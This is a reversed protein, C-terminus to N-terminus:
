AERPIEVVQYVEFVDGVKIDQFDKIGVGCEYGAQVERVDEKFRKLSAIEGDYVVVNDRLVRVSAGRRILGSQVYCGAVVGVGPIRFTQRVEATGLIEEKREPPLLGSMAAKIDEVAEYIVNYTMVDVGEQSALERARQDPRVHFGVIVADSASALLVDSESIAGVGKRIIQVKVKEDELAMLADSLAEVSGDVDGKVILRLEKVKGEEIRRGLDTLTIRRARSYEQERHRQQRRRSIERAEAETETVAFTDGAQPVGDIGLVQVPTSPGASEKPNGREDLLARVRGSYLGAVFPDGVHLTGEQVLVTAVPGRGKDLKAEVVVGRARSNPNARLELMEGILILTDLLQDVGQGTKASVEVMTTKGGWEEPILGYESLQRKVREINATPLDVKNIAVVIPVGAARAHDIAEVTQPRVGDDAAVVLVVIDTVRAGRARMATFAEHGPTDLFTVKGGDVSVEYAGIHQTIGGSEGAVVNTKRIYDLLTTKGHDVHGMVTVVPPRPELEGELVEEGLEEYEEMLEVEYGFEDAVMSLTEMDLRQNITVMLGMQLCKTIVESPSVGMSEALEAVSTFESVKLVKREEAEEKEEGKERHRRTRAKGMEMTALTRRISEEVEERTLGPRRRGRRKRRENTHRQAKPPEKMSSLEVRVAERLEEKSRRRRRRRRKPATREPPRSSFAKRREMEQISSRKEEQFKRRVWDEMEETVVSMHGHVDFGGSKLLSLLAESSVDYEKALQYVRKTEM